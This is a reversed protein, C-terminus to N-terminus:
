RRINDRSVFCETILARRYFAQHELRVAALLDDGRFYEAALM